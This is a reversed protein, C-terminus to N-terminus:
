HSRVAFFLFLGPAQSAAEPKVSGTPVVIRTDGKPGCKKFDTKLRLTLVTRVTPLSGRLDRRECLEKRDLVWREAYSTTRVFARLM